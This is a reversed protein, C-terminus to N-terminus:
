YRVSVANVIQVADNKARAKKASNKVSSLAPFLLGMLVAIIAIVTLLEILTFGPSFRASSLPAKM